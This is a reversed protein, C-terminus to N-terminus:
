PLAIEVLPQFSGRLCMSRHTREQLEPSAARPQPGDVLSSNGTQGVYREYAQSDGDASSEDRLSISACDVKPRVGVLVPVGSPTLFFSVHPM